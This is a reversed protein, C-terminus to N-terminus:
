DSNRMEGYANVTAGAIELWDFRTSWTRGADSMVRYQEDSLNEAALLATLLSEVRPECRIASAEPIDRLSPLDTIIVPRGFSQALMVSASNTVERFPFAAIDTAQMYRALDEEPVRELVTMVRQGAEDALRRLEIRYSKDSCSGVLLIKIKSSTPLQAAARLLLDAGKYTEIKGLLTVVVDNADFGFSERAEKNTRTVPYPGDFPGLPIVVVRRVGLGRLEGATADSLAIVLTTRSILMARARVDDAFVPEHPLLDHVTWVIAFGILQATRLYVGFWWEMLRRAWRHQRAWPLSFQFVWHIHLIRFDRMRWWVLLAPALILNLTQSPTPGESYRVRVGKSEVGRYLLEQYPVSDRPTVLVSLTPKM